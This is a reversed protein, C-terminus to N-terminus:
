PVRSAGSPRSRPIAERGCCLLNCRRRRHRAPVANGTAVTAESDTEDAIVPRAVDLYLGAHDLRTRSRGSSCDSYKSRAM